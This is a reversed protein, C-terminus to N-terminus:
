YCAKPRTGKVKCATGYSCDGVASCTQFCAGSSGTLVFCEQGQPCKPNGPDCSSLCVRDPSGTGVCLDDGTCSRVTTCSKWRKAEAVCVGSRCVHDKICDDFSPKTVDAKHCTEGLKRTRKRECSMTYNTMAGAIVPVNAEGPNKGELGPIARCDHRSTGSFTFTHRGTPVNIFAVFGIDSTSKRRPDPLGSTNFYIPGIVGPTKIGMSIGAEWSDSRSRGVRMTVIGTNPKAQLGLGAMMQKVVAAQILSVPLLTNQNRGRVVVLKWYGTKEFSLKMERKNIVGPLVYEGKANTTVCPPADPGEVCVKVGQIVKRANFDFASGRFSVKRECKVGMYSFVDAEVKSRFENEKSSSLSSDPWCTMGGTGSTEITHTGPPVNLFFGIGARSTKNLTKDPQGSTNIFFPGDIGQTKAKFSIGPQYKTGEWIFSTFVIVGMGPKLKVGLAGAFLPLIQKPVLLINLENRLASGVPQLTEVYSAKQFTLAMDKGAPVQLAYKGSADTKVCPIGARDKVCVEVGAIRKRTAFNGVEGFVRIMVPQEPVTEPGQHEPIDEQGNGADLEDKTTPEPAPEKIPEPTPEKTPEPAPELTPEKTPEPTPEKIPEKKPEKGADLTGGDNPTVTPSCNFFFSPIYVVIALLCISKFFRM